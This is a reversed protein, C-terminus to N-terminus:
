GWIQIAVEPRKRGADDEEPRRRGARRALKEEDGLNMGLCREM